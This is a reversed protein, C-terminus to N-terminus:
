TSHWLYWYVASLSIITLWIFTSILPSFYMKLCQCELVAAM